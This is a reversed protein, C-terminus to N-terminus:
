SVVSLIINWSGFMPRQIEHLLTKLLQTCHVMNETDMRRNFSMQTTKLTQDNYILSSHVYHHMHGKLINSFRKPIHVMTTYRYKLYFWKWSEWSNGSQDGFHNKWSATGAPISSHEEKKVNKGSDGTLQTKNKAWRLATFHFSLTMKIQMERIVLSTSCKKLVDWGNLIWWNLIKQKARYGM